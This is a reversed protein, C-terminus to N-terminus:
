AAIEVIEIGYLVSFLKAKVLYLPTRVGKVDEVVREDGRWYAFDGVYTGVKVGDVVLPFRPQVELDRIEGAQELLRLVRYRAAEAQSAFRIGDVEVPQNRYKRYAM